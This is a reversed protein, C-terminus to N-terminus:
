LVQVLLSVGVQFRNALVCEILLWLSGSVVGVGAVFFTGSLSYLDLGTDGTDKNCTIGNTSWWKLRISGLLREKQLKLIRDLSLLCFM